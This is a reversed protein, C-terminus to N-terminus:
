KNIERVQWEWTLYTWAATTDSRKMRIRYTGKTEATNTDFSGENGMTINDAYKIHNFKGNTEKQLDVKIECKDCPDTYSTYTHYNYFKQTSLDDKKVGETASSWLNYYLKTQSTVGRQHEQLTIDASALGVNAVVALALVMFSYKFIKM